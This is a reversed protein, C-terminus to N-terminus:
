GGGGMKELADEKSMPELRNYENVQWDFRCVARYDCRECPTKGGLRYPRVQIEGSVIGEALETIKREVFGLVKEFDEAKLAGSKGYHGYVDGDQKVYFNYYDSWKSVAARDLEGAFEGNFIGKAKHSFREVGEMAEELAGREAGAEVPMYFAGVVEGSGSKSVALMYVALQMDLGHYFESFSFTGGRRKYDFVVLNKGGGLEATDLRDIRGRLYLERGGPMVFKCEGLKNGKEGFWVESLVPRFGGAGVMQAIAAVCDELTEEAMRIIFANHFSHGRFKSIFRSDKVVRSLEEHLMGQLEDDSMGGLDRGEGVARKVFRDLVGHYFEGLDLPELKFEKRKELGLVYKAFYMYPCSAFTGLKTTSTKIAGGFLGKVVGAELEARNDYGMAEFIKGGVRGLEADKGVEGLLELLEEHRKQM